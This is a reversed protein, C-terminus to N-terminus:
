EDAAPSPGWDDKTGAQQQQQQVAVQQDFMPLPQGLHDFMPLPQALQDYMPLPQAMAMQERYQQQGSTRDAPLPQAMAMQERYKIAAYVAAADADDPPHAWACTAGAACRGHMWFKCPEPNRAMVDQAM